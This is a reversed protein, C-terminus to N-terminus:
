VRKERKIDSLWSKPVMDGEAWPILNKECWQAYTTKSGSNLKNSARLFLFRLDIGPNDRLVALTKTRDAGTFYGKTELYLKSGDERTFIFDPKYLHSTTYALRETEYEFPIGQAELHGAVNGEYGSRYRNSPSKRRGGITRRRRSRPPM